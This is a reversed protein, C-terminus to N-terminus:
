VIVLKDVNEVSLSLSRLVSKLKDNLSTDEEKPAEYRYKGAKYQVKLLKLNKIDRSVTAQTVDFGSKRLEDALEEQTDIDKKAIIDLIKFHRSSKM